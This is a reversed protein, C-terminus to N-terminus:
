EVSDDEWSLVGDELHIEIELTAPSRFIVKAELEEFKEIEATVGDNPSPEVSVLRDPVFTVEITGASTTITQTASWPSVTTTPGVTTSATTTPDGTTPPPTTAPEPSATTTVATTTTTASADAGSTVPPSTSPAVTNQGVTSEGTDESSGVAPDTTATPITSTTAAINAPDVIGVTGSNDFEPATVVSVDTPQASDGSLSALGFGAIGVVAATTAALRSMRARKARRMAPQMADLVDLPAPGHSPAARDFLDRIPDRDM